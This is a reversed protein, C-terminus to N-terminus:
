GSIRGQIGGRGATAMAIDARPLHVTALSPARRPTIRGELISGHGTTNARVKAAIEKISNRPGVRSLM